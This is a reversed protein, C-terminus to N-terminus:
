SATYITAIVDPDVSPAKGLEKGVFNLTHGRLDEYLQGLTGDATEITMGNILGFHRFKNTGAPTAKKAIIGVFGKSVQEVIDVTVDEDDKFIVMGTQSVMYSNNERSRNSNDTFLGSEMDPTWRVATKGAKMVIATVEGTELTYSERDSINYVYLEETGGNEACKQKLYDTLESAM